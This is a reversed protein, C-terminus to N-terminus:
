SRITNSELTQEFGNGGSSENKLQGMERGEKLDMQVFTRAPNLARSLETVAVELLSDLDPARRMKSSIQSVLQERSAREQTEDLLRLTEAAQAVQDIVANILAIESETWQREPDIEHLQLDGIMVNRLLIPAILAHRDHRNGLAVVELKKYSSARQRADIIIDESLTTSEGLSFRVRGVNKRAVRTRDWAQEVYRQQIERAEKLRSEVGAFQRVNRIKVAVQNALSRLLSEDGDDLGAVRDQQVDLVGVVKGESIIPIAMESYTNPLLPNPLWDKAKRVNDVRAIEGTRAARAVLSTLADLRIAHGKAKMEAGAPGTGEVVVLKEGKEDLLYIHAHYYGFNDRVQNVVEALLENLNLIANLRGSLNAVIELRQTRAAVRQELTGVLERLQATMHNFANALIGIEDKSGIQAQIEFDGATVAQAVATISRIPSAIQRAVFWILILGGIVLLVGIGVLRWMVLTAEATVKDLPITLGVSWPTTTKGFHIPAFVQFTNEEPQSLIFKEGAELRPLLDNFYPYFVSSPKGVLEPQNTVGALTGASSILAMKGNEGALDVQNTLQQLFDVRLDVGVIGYFKNDVVIPVVLSSLLVQQDEIPYFFPPIVQEQKTQRPVLYWDGIGPTEYDLLAEVHINNQLDRVWYPIFRGTADHAPVNVYDADMGDFADPEWLTYTGLFQPNDILIQRLMANIQERNLTVPNEKDKTAALVQALTRATDLATEVEVKIRAAESEALATTRQEAANIAMNRLSIATIGIIVVSALLLSLGAWLAIKIQVSKIGILWAM